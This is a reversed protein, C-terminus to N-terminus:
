DLSFLRSRFYVNEIDNNAALDKCEEISGNKATRARTGDDSLLLWKTGIQVLGEPNMNDLIPAIFSQPPGSGSWSFLGFTGGSSVEGAILILKDDVWVMDRVGKNKLSLKYFTTVSWIENELALKVILADGVVGGEGTLPARLGLLLSGDSAFAMGEINLGGEKPATKLVDKTLIQALGPHEVLTSILDYQASVRQINLLNRSPLNTAFLMRRNPRKKGEKNRGHSGIWWLVDGNRAVAEFDIEPKKPNLEVLHSIDFSAIPKGGWIYFSHIVNTEDNAVLLTTDDIRIAASGDCVGFYNISAIEKWSNSRSFSFGTSVTSLSFVVLLILKLFFTTINKLYKNMLFIENMYDVRGLGM